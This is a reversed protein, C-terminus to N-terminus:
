CGAGGSSLHLVPCLLHSEAGTPEPGPTGPPTPAPEMFEPRTEPLETAPSVLTVRPAEQVSGGPVAKPLVFTTQMGARDMGKVLGHCATGLGGTIFPPFEWGLMLVRLAM